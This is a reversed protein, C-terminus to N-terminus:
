IERPLFTLSAVLRRAVTLDINRLESVSRTKSYIKQKNIKQLITAVKQFSKVINAITSRLIRGASLVNKLRSLWSVVLASNLRSANGNTDHHVAVLEGRLLFSYCFLFDSQTNRQPAREYILLYTDPKARM